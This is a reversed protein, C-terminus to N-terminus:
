GACSSVEVRRAVSANGINTMSADDGVSVVQGFSGSGEPWLPLAISGAGSSQQRATGLDCRPAPTLRALWRRRWRAACRSAAGAPRPVCGVTSWGWRPTANASRPAVAASKLAHRLSNRADAGDLATLRSLTRSTAECADACDLNLRICRVLEAVLPEALCADACATCAQACDVCAEICAALGVAAAARAPHTDIMLQAYSMATAGRRPNPRDPGAAQVVTTYCTRDWHPEACLRCTDNPSHLHGTMPRTPLAASMPSTSSVAVRAAEPPVTESVGV